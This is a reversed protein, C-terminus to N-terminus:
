VFSNYGKIGLTFTQNSDLGTLVYNCYEGCNMTSINNIKVGESKDFTKYLFM